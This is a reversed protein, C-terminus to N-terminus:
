RRKSKTKNSKTKNLHYKWPVAGKPLLREKNFDRDRTKQFDSIKVGYKPSRVIFRGDDRKRVIWRWQPYKVNPLKDVFIVKGIFQEM